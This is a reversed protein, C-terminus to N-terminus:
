SDDIRRSAVHDPCGPVPNSSTVDRGGCHHCSYADIRGAPTHQDDRGKEWLPKPTSALDDSGCLACRRGGRLWSTGCAQCTVELSGDPRRRGSLSDDEQCAPCVISPM